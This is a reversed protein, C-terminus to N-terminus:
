RRKSTALSLACLTKHLGLCFEKAREADGAYYGLFGISLLNKVECKLAASQEGVTEITKGRKIAMSSVITALLAPYVFGAASWKMDQRLLTVLRLVSAVPKDTGRCSDIERACALLIEADKWTESM